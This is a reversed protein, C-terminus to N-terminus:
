ESLSEYLQGSKLLDFYERNIMVIVQGIEDNKQVHDLAQEKTVTGYDGVSIVFDKPMSQIRTYVIKQFDGM